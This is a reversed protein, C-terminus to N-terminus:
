ADGEKLWALASEHSDFFAYTWNKALAALAEFSRRGTKSANVVAIFSNNLHNYLSQQALFSYSYSNRRNLIVKVPLKHNAELFAFYADVDQKDIEGERPILEHIHDDFIIVQGISLKHEKDFL